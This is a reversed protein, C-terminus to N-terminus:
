RTGNFKRWWFQVMLVYFLKRCFFHEFKFYQIPIKGMKVYSFYCTGDKKIMLLWIKRRIISEFYKVINMWDNKMFLAYWYLLFDKFKGNLWNIDFFNSFYIQFNPAKMKKDNLLITHYIKTWISNRISNSSRFKLTCEIKLLM